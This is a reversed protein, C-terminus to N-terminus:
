KKKPLPMWHTIDYLNFDACGGGSVNAMAWSVSFLDPDSIDYWKCRYVVVWHKGDTALVHQGIKPLKAQISILDKKKIM